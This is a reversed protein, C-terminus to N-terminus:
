QHAQHSVAVCQFLRGEVKKFVAVSCSTLTGCPRQDLGCTLSVSGQKIIKGPQLSDLMHCLPSPDGTQWTFASGIVYGSFPCIEIGVWKIVRDTTVGSEREREEGAAM